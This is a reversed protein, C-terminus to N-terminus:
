RPGVRSWPRSGREGQVTEVNVSNGELWIAYAGNRAVDFRDIVLRPGVCSGRTPVASVVIDAVACDEALADRRLTAALRRGNALHALCGFGDCRVGNVSTATAVAAVRADGDRKLWESASYEDAAKRMLYLRGDGARAAITQGDRAVLVDPPRAFLVVAIGAIAPALGFWRWLRRWIAIWLGSVSFLVLSMLPWASVISVAGPLHSVWRGVALMAAIGWGMVHLPWADLGAPMLLVSIAAAPMTVFGMIPMALLNGLVAYHTARDFHFAAYPM